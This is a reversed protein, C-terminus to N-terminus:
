EEEIIEKHKNILKHGKLTCIGYLFHETMNLQVELINFKDPPFILPNFGMDIQEVRLKALIEPNVDKRVLGQEKGRVISEYIMKYAYESRFKHFIEWTKPHYKRLDYFINPNINSFIRHMKRMHGFVEEVVNNSNKFIESFECMHNQLDKEMLTHVIEDKDKFFQYITKKSMSLHKAIDDMTVSKIGFRFFLELSGQLIRDKTEM